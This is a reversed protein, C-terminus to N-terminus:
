EEFDRPRKANHMAEDYGFQQIRNAENKGWKYAVWKKM